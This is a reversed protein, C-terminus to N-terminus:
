TAYSLFTLYIALDLRGHIIGPVLVANTAGMLYGALLGLPFVVVAIFFFASPTYAIQAHAIGFIAAQLVNAVGFGFFVNYKQLFLGRFLIEEEFSNSLALVLLAPTLALLRDLTLASSTPLLRHAPSDPRLPLTAIFLYFVVFFAIAVVLWGRRKGWRLYISGLDRGSVLTLVVVPIIAILTELLQIVMTGSVTSALPDGANPPDRLIQGGVFGPLSNNLVQVVAFTFFAFALEWFPRFSPTRRLVLTLALLVAAVLLGYAIRVAESPIWRAALPVVGGALCLIALIVQQLGSLQFRQKDVAEPSSM